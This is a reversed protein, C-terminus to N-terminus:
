EVNPAIFQQICSSINISNKIQIPELMNLVQSIKLQKQEARIGIICNDHVFKQYSTGFEGDVGFRPKFKRGLPGPSSKYRIRLTREYNELKGEDNMLCRRDEQLPSDQHPVKDV